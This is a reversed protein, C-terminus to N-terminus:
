KEEGKSITDKDDENNRPEISFYLNELFYEDDLRTDTNYDIEFNDYMYDVAEAVLRFLETKGLDRYVENQTYLSYKGDEQLYIYFDEDDVFKCVFHIKNDIKLKPFIELFKKYLKKDEIAEKLLRERINAGNLIDELISNQTNSENLKVDLVRYVEKQKKAKKKAEESSSAQIFTYAEKDVSNIFTVKYEKENQQNNNEEMQKDYEEQDDVWEKAEEESPVEILKKKGKCITVLGNSNDNTVWYFSYGKYDCLKVENIKM